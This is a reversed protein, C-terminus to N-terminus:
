EPEHAYQSLTPQPHIGPSPSHYPRFLTAASVGIPRVEPPLPCVCGGRRGPWGGSGCAGEMIATFVLGTAAECIADDVENTKRLSEAPNPTGRPVSPFRFLNERSDM